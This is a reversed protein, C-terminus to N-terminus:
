RIDNIVGVKLQQNLMKQHVSIKYKLDSVFIDNQTYYKNFMNYTDTHKIWGYNSMLQTADYWTCKGKKKIKSIKRTGKLIINKRIITKERYFLYGMFNLARANDDKDNALRFVQYNNKLELNLINKLYQQILHIATHLKEKSDSFLVMDDM